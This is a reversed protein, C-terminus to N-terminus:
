KASERAMTPSPSRQVALKLTRLLPGATTGQVIISILVVGFTM